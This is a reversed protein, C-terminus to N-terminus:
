RTLTQQPIYHEWPWVSSPDFWGRIKLRFFSSLDAYKHGTTGSRQRDNAITRVFQIRKEGEAEPWFHRRM